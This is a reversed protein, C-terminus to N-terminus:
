PKVLKVFLAKLMKGILAPLFLFWLVSSIFFGDRDIDDLIAIIFAWAIAGILWIYFIEM